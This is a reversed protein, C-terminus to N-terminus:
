LGLTDGVIDISTPITSGRCSQQIGQWKYQVEDCHAPSFSAPMWGGFFEQWMLVTCQPRSAAALDKTLVDVGPRTVQSSTASNKPKGRTKITLDSTTAM